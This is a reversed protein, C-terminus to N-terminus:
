SVQKCSDEYKLRFIVADEECTLYIEYGYVITRSWFWDDGFTNECLLFLHNFNLYADDLQICIWSKMQERWNDYNVGHKACKRALSMQKASTSADTIM